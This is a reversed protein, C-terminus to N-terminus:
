ARVGRESAATTTQRQSREGKSSYNKPRTEGRKQEPERVDRRKKKDRKTRNKRM